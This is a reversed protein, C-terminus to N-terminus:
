VAREGRLAALAARMDPPLPATVRVPALTRPHTFALTGAHLMPRPWARGQLPGATIAGAAGYLKDGAVPHGIAALHVRIQHTRGTFIRVELWAYSAGAQGARGGPAPFRERVRYATRAPRSHAAPRRTSMRVRHLRDRGIPLEIDGQAARPLGQVLAWYLKDVERQQFQRALRQHTWENRAVVIAGSTLRDLRHVIGPRVTGAAALEPYRHLLANALTGARLGAGPHVAMGAPKDIVALDPDEYLIALPLAEPAATAPAPRADLAAEVRDGPALAHSPRLQARGNVRVCGARIQAQLATRSWDPLHQGLFRDLRPGDARECVFAPAAASM